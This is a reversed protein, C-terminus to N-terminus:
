KLLTVAKVVDWLYSGVNGVVNAGTAFVGVAFGQTWAWINSLVPM